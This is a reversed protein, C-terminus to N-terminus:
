VAPELCDLGSMEMEAATEPLLEFESEVWLEELKETSHLRPSPYGSPSAPANVPSTPLRERSVPYLEGSEEAARIQAIDAKLQDESEHVMLLTGAASNLDITQRLFGGKQLAPLTEVVSPLKMEAITKQIPKTLYGEVPSILVLQQCQKQLPYLFREPAPVFRKGM